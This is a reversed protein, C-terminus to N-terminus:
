NPNRTTAWLISIRSQWLSDLSWKEVISSALRAASMMTAPRFALKGCMSSSCGSTVTGPIDISSWNQYKLCSPVGPFGCKCM